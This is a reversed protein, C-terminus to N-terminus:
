RTKMESATDGPPVVGVSSMLTRQGTKAAKEALKEKRRLQAIAAQDMATKAKNCEACLTQLNNLDWEEGGLAIPVIHDVILSEYTNLVAYEKGDEIIFERFSKWGSIM